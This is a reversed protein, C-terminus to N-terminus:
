EIFSPVNLYFFDGLLKRNSPPPNFGSFNINVICPIKQSASNREKTSSIVSYTSLDNKIYQKLTANKKFFFKFKFINILLVLVEEQNFPQEPNAQSKAKLENEKNEAMKGYIM